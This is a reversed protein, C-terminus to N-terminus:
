LVGEFGMKFLPSAKLQVIQQSNDYKSLYKDLEEKNLKYRKIPNESYHYKYKLEINKTKFM